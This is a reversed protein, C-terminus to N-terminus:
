PNVAIANLIAYVVQPKAVDSHGTIVADSNLNYLRGGSFAYSDGVGLLRGDSVEPTKQAGNRGLGGFRDNKDGLGSAVQNKLLSALPYAIGVAVDNVTYTILVPGSVLHGTVVTRFAGDHVDDWHRAFGYHSFAAQLLSLSDPQVPPKGDPGATAATALRAGFSHGVLHLGIDPRRDRVQRLVDYVGGRGVTGAREKMQYYTLFNVLNLAAGKPGGAFLGGIFSAAHGAPDGVDATGGQGPAASGPPPLVPKSLRRMIEDGPLAFLDVSADEEDAASRPITQRLLDAFDSRATQKDELLPVLKKAQDIAADAAPDDLVAKLEELQELLVADSVVSGLGAGHGAILEKDAFKKSPWLVGMAAFSRDGVQAVQAATLAARLLGLLSDYLRGAEAMTNNWGHCLVLLDTIGAGAVMKLVATVEGPDYVAGAKTFQVTQYPFGHKDPM